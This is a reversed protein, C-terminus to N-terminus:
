DAEGIGSEMRLAEVLAEVEAETVPVMSEPRVYQWGFNEQWYDLLVQEPDSWAARNDRQQRAYYAEMPTSYAGKPHVIRNDGQGTIWRDVCWIGGEGQGAPQSLVFYYEMGGPPVAKALWHEGPFTCAAQFSRWRPDEEMPITGASERVADALWAAVGKRAAAYGEQNAPDFQVDTPTQLIYYRGEESVGLYDWGGSMEWSDYEREFDARELSLLSCLYGGYGSTYDPAHYCVLLTNEDPDREVVVSDALEEPLEALYEELTRTEETRATFTCVAAIGATLVAAALGAALMRPRRAILKVREWIASHRGAMTTATQLLDGPAAGVAVLDVLTRGYPIREEEGLRAVTGEDCALECDRRSLCAAVWVLPHFWYLALCLCRVWAWLPDAHRLHTREHTLVHRMRREDELCPPTVYIAPRFLGAVCPSPLEEAVYVPEKGGTDLRRARRLQARLRLNVALFWVAVALAGAAWVVLWFERGAATGAPTVPADAVSEPGSQPLAPATEPFAPNEAPTAPRGLTEEVGQAGPVVNMISAPSEVLGAPLLLRLAVLLWLAYMVRASVRGRLLVRLACLVLILVSSTVMRELM